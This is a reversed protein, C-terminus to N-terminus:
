ELEERVEEWLDAVLGPIADVVANRAEGREQASGFDPDVDQESLIFLLSLAEGWPGSELESEEEIGFVFGRILGSAFEKLAAKNKKSPIFDQSLRGSDMELQAAVLVMLKTAKERIESGQASDILEDSITDRDDDWQEEDFHLVEDVFDLLVDKDFDKWDDADFALSTAVGISFGTVQWNTMLRAIRPNADSIARLLASSEQPPTGASEQKEM